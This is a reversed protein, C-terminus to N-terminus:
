RGGCELACFRVARLELDVDVCFSLLLCWHFLEDACLKNWLQSLYELCKTRSQDFLMSFIDLM